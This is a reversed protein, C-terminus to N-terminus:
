DLMARFQELALPLLTRIFTEKDLDSISRFADYRPHAKSLLPYRGRTGKKVSDFKLVLDILPHAQCPYSDLWGIRRMMEFRVQDALFLHVDIVVLQQDKDIFRIDNTKGLSLAGFILEYYGIASKEGPGALWFLTKASLDTLRTGSDFTEGFRKRWADFTRRELAKERYRGLDVVEGM